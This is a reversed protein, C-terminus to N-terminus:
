VTGSNSRTSYTMGMQLPGHVVGLSGGHAEIFLMNQSDCIAVGRHLSGHMVPGSQGEVVMLGQSGAIGGRQLTGQLVQGGQSGRELLLLQSGSLNASQLLGSIPLACTQVGTM